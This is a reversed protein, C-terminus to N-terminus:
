CVDLITKTMKDWGYKIKEQRVCATFDENRNNQYFDVISDAIEIATPETTYGMKTHKVIEGLGGVNTVLMPKDFHFAVQTVGSQTASKYPQVVMDAASFYANVKDNPIFDNYFVINQEVGLTKIKEKYSTEDEYFEGAVILSVELDRVRKDAMAEILLDLGKYARIFGFFLLYNKNPDLNIQACAAHKPLIEGYHDYIPHPSFKKPKGQKDLLAIDQVVSQSLTVFGHMARVFYQPFIKDLVSPEHPMINHILGICRTKKNKGIGRAITAFCPAMFSMWYCFIVLDADMAAIQKGTKIWNLPNTSNISRTIKLREPAADTSFQTKGPFLFSPYQLTFTVMEIEHGETQFQTALRENFAALGGRYPFATGLIVIKM